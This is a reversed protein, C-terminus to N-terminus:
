RVDWTKGVMLKEVKSEVVAIKELLDKAAGPGKSAHWQKFRYSGLVTLLAAVANFDLPSELCLKVLVIWVAINTISITGTEDLLKFFNLTKLLQKM